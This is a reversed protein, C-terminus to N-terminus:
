SSISSSSSSNSLLASYAEWPARQTKLQTKEGLAQGRLHSAARPESEPVQSREVETEENFHPSAWKNPLIQRTRANVKTFGSAMRSHLSGRPLPAPPQEQRAPGKMLARPLSPGPRERRCGPQRSQLAQRQLSHQIFSTIFKELNKKSSSKFFKGIAWTTLLSNGKALTNCSEREKM